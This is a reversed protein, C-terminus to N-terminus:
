CPTRVCWRTAASRSTPRRSRRSARSPSPSRTAVRAARRQVPVRGSRQHRRDLTAQTGVNVATVTAGPLVGGGADTVNGVLGTQSALQGAAPTALVLCLAASFLIRLLPADKRERASACPHNSTVSRYRHEGYHFEGAADVRSECCFSAIFTLGCGRRRGSRRTRVATSTTRSPSAAAEAGNTNLIHFVAPSRPPCCGASGNRM